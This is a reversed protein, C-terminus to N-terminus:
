SKRRRRVLFFGIGLVVVIAIVSALLGITIIKNVPPVTFQDSSPLGARIAVNVVQGSSSTALVDGTLAQWKANTAGLYRFIPGFLSWRGSTAAMVVTRQNSSQSFVQISALPIEPNLTVGTAANVVVLTGGLGQLPADFSRLRHATGVVLLPAQDGQATSLSTVQPVLLQNTLQQLGGVLSTAVQLRTLSPQDLAVQFTPTM